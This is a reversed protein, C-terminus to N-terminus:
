SQQGYNKIKRRLKQVETGGKKIGKREVQKNKRQARKENGGAVYTKQGEKGENYKIKGKVGEKREKVNKSATAGTKKEIINTEYYTHVFYNM